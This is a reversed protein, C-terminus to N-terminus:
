SLGFIDRFSELRELLGKLLDVGSNRRKSAKSETMALQTALITGTLSSVSGSPTVASPGVKMVM